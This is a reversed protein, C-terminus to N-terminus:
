EYALAEIPSLRAARYAPYLGFVIGVAAAVTVALIVISASMSTQMTMNGIELGSMATSAIWGLLVGIGGGILSISAAEVLFQLLIDKRKAGVAKRIGIERTRETVSVLMINMVGIGGVLLSIGAVAGLFIVLAQTSSELTEITDQQSTITFDDDGTIRHRQRLITAIQDMAADTEEASTVQVNITSVTLEGSATRGASLRYQVTSIPAIVVDDTSTFGTGGKSELVGIVQFRRNSIMISEGIPNADGFLTEAVDSGLVAVTSRGEVHDATIFSGEAVEYNRVSEYEPTVGLIQSYSNERGYEIQVFTQAEPAVAAVSPALLPDSLAEADELTLTAASGIAMRVGGETSAGPSVFLLNTGLSEINSTIAAQTGQGFSMLSIVAGVGIVVGLM